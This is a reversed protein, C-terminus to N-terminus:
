LGAAEGAQKAPEFRVTLAPCTSAYLSLRITGM